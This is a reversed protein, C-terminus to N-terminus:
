ESAPEDVPDAKVEKVQGNEFRIEVEQIADSSAELTYRWVSADEDTSGLGMLAPQAAEPPGLLQLVDSASMGPSIVDGEATSFSNQAWAGAANLFGLCFCTVILSRKPM